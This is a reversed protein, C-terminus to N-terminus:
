GFCLTENVAEAYTIGAKGSHKKFFGVWERVNAHNAELWQRFGSASKFYTIKM